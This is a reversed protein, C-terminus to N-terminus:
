QPRHVHRGECSYLEIGAELYLCSGIAAPVRDIRFVVLVTEMFGPERCGDRGKGIERLDAVPAVAESVDCGSLVMLEVLHFEWDTRVIHFGNESRHSFM